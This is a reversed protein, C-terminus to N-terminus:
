CFISAQAEPSVLLFKDLGGIKFRDLECSLSYTINVGYRIKSMIELIDRSLKAKSVDGFFIFLYFLDVDNQTDPIFQFM